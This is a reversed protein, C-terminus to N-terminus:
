ITPPNNVINDIQEKQDIADFYTNIVQKKDEYEQKINRYATEVPVFTDFASQILPIYKNEAAQLMEDKTMTAFASTCFVTVLFITILISKM